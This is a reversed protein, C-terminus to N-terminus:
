RIINKFKLPVQAIPLLHVNELIEIYKWYKALDDFNNIERNFYFLILAQM